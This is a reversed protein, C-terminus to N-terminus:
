FLTMFNYGLILLSPLYCSKRLLQLYGRKFSILVVVENIRKLCPNSKGVLIRIALVDITGDRTHCKRYFISKLLYLEWFVLLWIFNRLVTKYLVVPLITWIWNSIRLHLCTMNWWHVQWPLIDLMSSVDLHLM